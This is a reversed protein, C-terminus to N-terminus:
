FSRLVTSLPEHNKKQLNWGQFICSLFCFFLLFFLVGSFSVQQFFQIFNYILLTNYMYSMTYYSIDYNLHVDVNASLCTSIQTRLKLLNQKPVEVIEEYIASDSPM